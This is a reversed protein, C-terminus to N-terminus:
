WEEMEARTPALKRWVESFNGDERSGGSAFAPSFDSLEKVVEELPATSPGSLVVLPPSSTRAQLLTSLENNSFTSTSPLPLARFIRLAGVFPVFKLKM